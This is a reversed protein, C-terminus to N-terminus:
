AFLTLFFFLLFSCLLSFVWYKFAPCSATSPCKWCFFPPTDSRIQINWHKAWAPETWTPALTSHALSLDWCRAITGMTPDEVSRSLICFKKREFLLQRQWVQCGLAQDQTHRFLVPCQLPTNMCPTYHMYPLHTPWIQAMCSGAWLISPTVEKPWPDMLDTNRWM